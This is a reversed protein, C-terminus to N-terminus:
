SHVFSRVIPLLAVGAVGAVVCTIVVRTLKINRQAVASLPALALVATPVGVVLAYSWGERVNSVIEPMSWAIPLALCVDGLVGDTNAAAAGMGLVVCTPIALVLWPAAERWGAALAVSERMAFTTHYSLLWVVLYVAMTEIGLWTRARLASEFRTTWVAFLFGVTLWPATAAGLAMVPGSIQRLVQAGIGLVVGTLAVVAFM